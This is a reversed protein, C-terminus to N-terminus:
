YVQSKFFLNSKIGVKVRCLIELKSFISSKLAFNWYILSGVTIEFGLFVFSILLWYFQQQGGVGNPNSVM